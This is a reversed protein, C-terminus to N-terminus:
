VKYLAQQECEIIYNEVFAGVDNASFYIKHRDILKRIMKAGPSAPAFGYIYREDYMDELTFIISDDHVKTAWHAYICLKNIPHYVVDLRVYKNKHYIYFNRFIVRPTDEDTDPHEIDPIHQYCRVAWTAEGTVSALEPKKFGAFLKTWRAKKSKYVKPPGIFEIYIKTGKDTTHICNDSTEMTAIREFIELDHFYMNYKDITNALLVIKGCERLRFITSVVDVFTVFENSPTFRSIFEDFLVLDGYPENCSSKLNTAEDISVMRCFYDPAKEVIEGDDDVKCFYWKKSKYFVNNYRDNTIKQIYGNEVIVSFMSSANKPAIMDKRQRVYMTVTGYEEHMVMGCLLWGTTKGTARESLEVFWQASDLPATAPNYFSTPIGLNKLKKRILKWDYEIGRQPDNNIFKRKM